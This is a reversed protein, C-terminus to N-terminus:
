RLCPFILPCFAIPLHNIESSSTVSKNLFSWHADSLLQSDIAAVDCHCVSALARQILKLAGNGVWLRAQAEGAVAFGLEQLTADLAVAIDPASDVLTGDLDFLLAGPERKPWLASFNNM